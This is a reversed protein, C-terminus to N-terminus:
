GPNDTVDFLLILCPKYPVRSHMPKHQPKPCIIESKKAELKDGLFHSQHSRCKRKGDVAHTFRQPSHDSEAPCLQLSAERERSTSQEPTDAEKHGRPSYGM